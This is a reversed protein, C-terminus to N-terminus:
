VICVTQSMVRPSRALIAVQLKSVEVSKLLIITYIIAFHVGTLQRYYIWLDYIRAIRTHYAYVACGVIYLTMIAVHYQRSTVPLLVAKPLPGKKADDVGM